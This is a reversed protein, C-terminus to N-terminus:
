HQVIFNDFYLDVVGSDGEEAEMVLHVEQLAAQRLIEKGEQTDIAEETQKSLLLVINNRLFPLHYRVQNASATDKARVTIDAKIYRMRGPGGYNVVFSPKLPVYVASSVGEEGPEDEASTTAAFFVAFVTLVMLTSLRKITLM